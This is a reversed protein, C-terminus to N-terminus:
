KNFGAVLVDGSVFGFGTNIIEGENRWEIDFIDGNKTIAMDRLVPEGDRWYEVNFTGEYETIKSGVAAKAVGIGLEQIGRDSQDLAWEAILTGKETGFRYTALGFNHAM